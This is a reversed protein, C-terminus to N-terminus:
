YQHNKTCCCLCIPSLGCNMFQPRDGIKNLNVAAHAKRHFVVRMQQDFSGM